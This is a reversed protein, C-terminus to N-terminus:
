AAECQYRRGIRDCARKARKNLRRRMWILMIAFPTAATPVSDILKFFQGESLDAKARNCEKCAAAINTRTTWGKRARPWKHDATATKATLFGKCYHCRGGQEALAEQRFLQVWHQEKAM